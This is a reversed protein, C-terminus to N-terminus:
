GDSAGTPVSIVFVTPDAFRECVLDGGFMQLAEKWVILGIGMGGQKTTTQRRFLRERNSEPIGPGDDEVRLTLTRRNSSVAIRIRHAVGDGVGEIAQCANLILNTLANLFTARNTSITTATKTPVIEITVNRAEAYEKFVIAVEQVAEAASFSETEQQGSGITRLFQIHKDIRSVNRKIVDTASSVEPIAVKHHRLYDSINESATNISQLPQRIEHALSM